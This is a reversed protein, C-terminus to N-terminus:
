VFVGRIDYVIIGAVPSTSDIFKLIIPVMRKLYSIRNLKLILAIKKLNAM